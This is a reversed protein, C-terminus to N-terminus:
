ADRHLKTLIKIVSHEVCKEVSEVNVYTKLRDLGIMALFTLHAFNSALIEAMLVDIWGFWCGGVALHLLLWSVKTAM